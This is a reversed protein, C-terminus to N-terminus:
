IGTFYDAGLMSTLENSWTSGTIAAPMSPSVGENISFAVSFIDGGAKVKDIDAKMRFAASQHKYLDRQAGLVGKLPNSGTGYPTTGLDTTQALETLQKQDLLAIESTLKTIESDIKGDTVATIGTINSGTNTVTFGWQKDLEAITKYGIVDVEQDVKGTQATVLLTQEIETLNKQDLLTTEADTKAVQSPLVTSVEYGTKATLQTETARKQDTLDITSYVGAIEADAQRNSRDTGAIVELDQSQLLDIKEQLEIVEKPRMNATVYLQDAEQAASLSVKATSENDQRTTAALVELDQSQLLDIKEQLEIKQEDVLGDAAEVITTISDNTHTVTYGWQKTLEAITSYGLVETDRNLKAIKATSESDNRSTAALQELDQSQLLDVKEQVEIIQEDILGGTGGVMNAIDWANTIDQTITYGWQKNLEAQTKFGIAYQQTRDSAEKQTTLSTEADIKLEQADVLLKEAATKLHQNTILTTNQIETLKQQGVLATKAQEGLMQYDIMGDAAPTIATITSDIATVTFGWQKDLQAQTLWNKNENEDLQAQIQADILGNGADAIATIDHETYTVTQGWQKELEAVAKYFVSQHNAQAAFVEEPRLNTTIYTQDNIQAQILDAQKDAQQEGLIFKISESLVSQMSGLYVNAYDTGALRGKNFQGDIHREVAQILKDFIGDGDTLATSNTIDSVQIDAM